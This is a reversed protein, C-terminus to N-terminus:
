SDILESTEGPYFSDDLVRALTYPCQAPFGHRPLDTEHIALEIARLYAKGFAEELYPKLSPNDHLLDAIDLRQIRITALWSRSRHQCQYEWKL